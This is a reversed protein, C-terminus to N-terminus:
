LKSEEGEVLAMIALAQGFHTKKLEIKKYHELTDGVNTGFSVQLLEGDEAIHEIVAQLAKAACSLFSEDLYGKRIAFLLGCCFGATASAEVYSDPHDILTHWMGSEDQYKRLANAQNYLLEQTYRRVDDPLDVMELYEGLFITAWCNGRGWFAKAYNSRKKFSWGHYWLGSVRDQLYKAHVLYQYTAESVCDQRNFTKGYQALFLVAMVLTDDWLDQENNVESHSHLMGGEETRPMETMIWEAWEDMVDKYIQKPRITYLYVMTLLPSITNVNKQPLGIQLRSEFWSEILDLKGVDGSHLYRKYIGYLGIGHTWDWSAFRLADEQSFGYIEVLNGCYTEDIDFLSHMLNEEVRDTLQGIRYTM